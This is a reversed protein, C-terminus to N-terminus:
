KNPAMMFFLYGGGFFPEFYTAKGIKELNIYKTLYKSLQRKGGAWKLVPKM